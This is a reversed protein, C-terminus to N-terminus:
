LNNWRTSQCRPWGSTPWTAALRRGLPLRASRERRRARRLGARACVYMCVEKVKGNVSRRRMFFENHEHIHAVSQEEFLFPSTSARPDALKQKRLNRTFPTLTTANEKNETPKTAGLNTATTHLKPTPKLDYLLPMKMKHWDHQIRQGLHKKEEDYEYNLNVELHICSRM